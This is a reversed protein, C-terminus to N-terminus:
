KIKCKRIKWRLNKPIRTGMHLVEFDFSFSLFILDLSLPPTVTTRKSFLFRGNGAMESLRWFWSIIICVVKTHHIVLIMTRYIRYECLMPIIAMSWYWCCFLDNSQNSKKICAAISVSVLYAHSMSEVCYACRKWTKLRIRRKQSRNKEKKGKKKKEDERRKRQRVSSLWGIIPIGAVKHSCAVRM